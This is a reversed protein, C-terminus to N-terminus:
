RNSTLGSIEEPPFQIDSVGYDFQGGSFQNRGFTSGQAVYNVSLNYPNVATDARWQDIELAAFGSGGGLIATSASAPAAAGAVLVAVAFSVAIAVRLLKATM